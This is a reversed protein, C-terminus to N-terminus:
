FKNGIRYANAMILGTPFKLPNKPISCGDIIFLNKHNILECNENLSLKKNKGNIPITGTYHSDNGM